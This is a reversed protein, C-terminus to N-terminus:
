NVLEIPGSFCGLVLLTRGDAGWGIGATGPGREPDRNSGNRDSMDNLINRTWRPSRNQDFGMLQQRYQQEWQSLRHNQEVAAQQQLRIRDSAVVPLPQPPLLRHPDEHEINTEPRESRRPISRSRQARQRQGTANSVPAPTPVDLPVRSRNLRDQPRSTANAGTAATSEASPPTISNGLNNSDARHPPEPFPLRMDSPSATWRLTIAPHAALSSTSTNSSQTASNINHNNDQSLVVSGRRRPAFNRNGSRMRELHRERIFEHLADVYRAPPSSPGSSDDGGETNNGLFDQRLNTLSPPLLRPPESPQRDDASSAFRTTGLFDIIQRERETVDHIWNERMRESESNGARREISPDEMMDILHNIADADEQSHAAESRSLPQNESESDSGTSNGRRSIGETRAKQLGPEDPDLVLIQRRSFAQRVDAIGARGNDETWVLLDWPEPSFAMCRVAGGDFYSRSSRFTCLIADQEPKSTDLVTPVDFVTIIGSQSATACLQSSPSFAITFCCRDDYRADAELDITRTLPFEWGMLMHGEDPKGVTKKSCPQISYFYIRNEDGVAVLVMSDPSIIAYNMCVQYQIVELMESQTLSYVSVTMDNNSCACLVLTLSCPWVGFDVVYM